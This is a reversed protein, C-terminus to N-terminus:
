CILRFFQCPSLCPRPKFCLECPRAPFRVQDCCSLPCPSSVFVLSSPFSLHDLQAISSIVSRSSLHPPKFCLEFLLPASSGILSTLSLSLCLPYTLPLSLAQLLAWLTLSLLKASSWLLPCLFVVEKRGCNLCNKSHHPAWVCPFLFLKFYNLAVKIWCTHEFSPVEFDAWYSWNCSTSSLLFLMAFVFHVLIVENTITFM